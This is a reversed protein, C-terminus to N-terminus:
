CLGRKMSYEHLEKFEKVALVDAFKTNLCETPTHAMAYHVLNDVLQISAIITDRKLAGRFFRFEVTADNYLNVAQYRGNYSRLALSRLDLDTTYRLDEPDWQPFRAWQDVQDETRRSFNLLADKLAFSLLVLNAAVQERCAWDDGMAKRGVHIHLGCTGADHSTYDHAKCTRAIEAWRLQYTHYALTCPHTVIEVGESGLSGDHKMYIPEDLDALDNALDNHDDGDDVELELGFTLLADLDEGRRAHLEPEPKYGYDHFAASSSHEEWCCDCYYCGSAENYHAYDYRIIHECDECVVYDDSCRDCIARDDDEAWIHDGSFYEGCDDCRTYRGLCDECVWSEERTEPNVRTLDDLRVIEGCDECTGYDEEYCEECITDGDATTYSEDEPVWEGCEDCQVFGLERACDACVMMTEGNVELEFLEEDCCGCNMCTNENMTHGKKARQAMGPKHGLSAYNVNTSTRNDLHL